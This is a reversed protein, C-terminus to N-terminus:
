RNGDIRAIGEGGGIGTESQKRFATVTEVRDSWPRERALFFGGATSCCEREWIDEEEKGGEEKRRLDQRPHLPPGKSRRGGGGGREKSRFARQAAKSPTLPPAPLLPSPPFAM